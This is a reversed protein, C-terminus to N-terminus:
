ECALPNEFFERQRAEQYEAASAEQRASQELVLAFKRKIKVPVGRKILCNEGNCSVFVDDRYDKGDRFLQVEVYEEMCPDIPAPQNKQANIEKLIEERLSAKLAEIDFKETKVAKNDSM